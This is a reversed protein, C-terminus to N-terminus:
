QAAPCLRMCEACGGAAYRFSACAFRNISYSEGDEPMKLAGAPCGKICINCNTCMNTVAKEEVPKFQAETLCVSLRVRPGFDHTLLLGNRGIYGLETAAAASKYSFAAQLFRTDTPCGIAHLPLAKMGHSRCAHAVDYAAKTLRSNIYALHTTYMDNMSVQGTTREPRTQTLVEPFIEMALVVISKTEPLLKLADEVLKNYSVKELPVMGAANAEVKIQFEMNDAGISTLTIDNM